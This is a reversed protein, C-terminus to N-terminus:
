TIWGVKKKWEKMEQRRKEYDIPPSQNESKAQTRIIETQEAISNLGISMRRQNVIALDDLPQASLEGNRDWDFQTGYRQTKGEFIAIRDSLYALHKPNADGQSVVEELLRACKKIFTPQGIAHQIIFWAAESAEKGVKDITPYGITDIIVDLTAANKNHLHEMESHYGTDLQGNLILRNRVELDANRLKIIKQAIDKYDM